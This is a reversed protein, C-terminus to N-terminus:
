SVGVCPQCGPPRCLVFVMASNPLSNFLLCFSPRSICLVKKPAKAAKTFGKQLAQEYGAYEGSDQRVPREILGKPVWM